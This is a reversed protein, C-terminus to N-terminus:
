EERARGRAQVIAEAIQFDEPTTIKFGLRSIAVLEVPIGLDECLSAEDTADRGSALARLLIEGRFAQPTAAAWLQSRDLTRVIRGDSAQKITDAVPIAAIAAGSKQAAELVARIEKGNVFPRAADHVAVVDDAEPRLAELGRRVSASRTEGGAVVLARGRAIAGFEEVRDPPATVVIREFGLPTFVDLTWELLPRGSLRASAKPEGRGLRVGSGAAAILGLLRSM